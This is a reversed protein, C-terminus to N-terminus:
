NNMSDKYLEWKLGKNEKKELVKDYLKKTTQIFVNSDQINM